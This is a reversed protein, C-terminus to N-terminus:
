FIQFMKIKLKAVGYTHIVYGDGSNTVSGVSGDESAGSIISREESM